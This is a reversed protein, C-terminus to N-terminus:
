HSTPLVFATPTGKGSFVWVSGARPEHAHFAHQGPSFTGGVEHTHEWWVVAAESQPIGYVMPGERQAINGYSM